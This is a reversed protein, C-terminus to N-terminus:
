GTETVSETLLQHPIALKQKEKSVLGNLYLNHKHIQKVDHRLISHGLPHM